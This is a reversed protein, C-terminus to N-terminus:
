KNRPFLTDQVISLNYLDEPYAHKKDDSSVYEAEYNILFKGICAGFDSDNPYKERLLILANILTKDLKQKEETM